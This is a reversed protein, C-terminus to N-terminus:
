HVTHLGTAMRHLVLQTVLKKGGNILNAALKLILIGEQLFSAITKIKASTTRRLSWPLHARGRSCPEEPAAKAKCPSVRPRKASPFYEPLSVNLIQHDLPNSGASVCVSAWVRRRYAVSSLNEKAWQRQTDTQTRGRRQAPLRRQGLGAHTQDAGRSQGDRLPSLDEGGQRQGDSVAVSIDCFRLNVQKVSRTQGCVALRGSGGLFFLSM